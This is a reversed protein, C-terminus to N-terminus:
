AAGVRAPPRPTPETSSEIRSCRSRDVGRPSPIRRSYETTRQLKEAVVHESAQGTPQPEHSVVRRIRLRSRVAGEDVASACFVPNEQRAVFFKRGPQSVGDFHPAVVEFFLDPLDRGDESQLEDIRQRAAGEAVLNERRQRGLLNPPQDGFADSRPVPLKPSTWGTPADIPLPTMPILHNLPQILEVEWASWLCLRRESPKALSVRM